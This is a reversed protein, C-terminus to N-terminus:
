VRARGAAAARLRARSAAGNAFVLTLSTARSHRFARTGQRKPTLHAVKACRGRCATRQWTWRPRTIPSLPARPGLTFVYFLLSHEHSALLFFSLHFVHWLVFVIAFTQKTADRLCFAFLYCFFIIRKGMHGLPHPERPPDGECLGGAGVHRRAPAFLGVTRRPQLHAASLAVAPLHGVQCHRRMERVCEFVSVRLLCVVGFLFLILRM